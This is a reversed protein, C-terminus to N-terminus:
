RDAATASVSVSDEQVLFPLIESAVRWGPAASSGSIHAVHECSVGGDHSRGGCRILSTYKEGVDTKRCLIRELTRFNAEFLLDVM